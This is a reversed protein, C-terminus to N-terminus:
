GIRTTILHHADAFNRKVCYDILPMYDTDINCLAWILLDINKSNVILILLMSLDVSGIGYIMYIHNFINCSGYRGALKLM